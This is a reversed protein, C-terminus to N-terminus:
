IWEPDRVYLEKALEKIEELTMKIAFEKVLMSYAKQGDAKRQENVRKFKSPKMMTSYYSWAVEEKLEDKWEKAVKEKFKLYQGSHQIRCLEISEKDTSGCGFCKFCLGAEVHGYHKIYGEGKCRPCKDEM